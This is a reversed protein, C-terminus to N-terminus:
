KKSDWHSQIYDYAESMSLPQSSASARIFFEENDKKGLFVPKESKEINVICVDFGNISIISFQLLRHINKGLHQNIVNTLALVFGDASNKSLSQYDHKLGLIKGDDNVGIFLMGGDTNLFGTITKVIVYELTKNSKEQRYDWRLSSKFEIKDTEGKSIITQWDNSEYDAIKRAQKQSKRKQLIYVLTLTLLVIALVGIIWKNNDKVEYIKHKQALAVIEEDTINTSGKLIAQVIDDNGSRVAPRIKDSRVDHFNYYGTPSSIVAKVSLPNPREYAFAAIKKNSIENILDEISDFIKLKLDPFMETLVFYSLENRMVGVSDKIAHVSQPKIGNKLFITTSVRMIYESYTLRLSDDHIFSGALIDAKGDLVMKVCEDTTGAVFKIESSTKTAWLKWWDILVGEPEGSKGISAYPPYNNQHAIVYSEANVSIVAVLTFFLIALAKKM